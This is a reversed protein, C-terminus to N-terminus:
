RSLMAAVFVIQAFTILYLLTSFPQKRTKHRFWHRGVWAGIIGGLLAFVLLTSEAVRWNGARAQNKDYGFLAFVWINIALLLAGIETPDLQAIFKV